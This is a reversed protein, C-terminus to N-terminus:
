LPEQLCKPAGECTSGGPMQPSHHSLPKCTVAEYIRDFCSLVQLNM